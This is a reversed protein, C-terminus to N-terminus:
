ILQSINLAQLGPIAAQEFPDDITSRAETAGTVVQQDNLQFRQRGDHHCPYLWSVERYPTAGHREVWIQTASRPRSAQAALVACCSSHRYRLHPWWGPDLHP